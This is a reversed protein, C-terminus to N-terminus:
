IEWLEDFGTEECWDCKTEEEDVDDVDIYIHKAHQNGEHAEIGMLCSRCVRLPRDDDSEKLSEFKWENKIVGGEYPEIDDIDFDFEEEDDDILGNYDEFWEIAAKENAEFDMDHESDPGYLEDDGFVTFYNNDKHDFYLTYDTTFGDSDYVMKHRIREYRDDSDEDDFDDEDVDGTIESTWINYCGNDRMQKIYDLLAVHDGEFEEIYKLEEGDLSDTSYHIDYKSECVKSERQSTGGNDVWDRFQQIADDDSEAHIRRVFYGDNLISYGDYPHDGLKVLSAFYHRDLEESETLSENALGYWWLLIMDDPYQKRLEKQKEIADKKSYMPCKKAIEPDHINAFEEFSKGNWYMRRLGIPTEPVLEIIWSNPSANYNPSAEGLSETKYRPPLLIKGLKKRLEQFSKEDIEEQSPLAEPNVLEIKTFHHLKHKNEPQQHYKDYAIDSVMHALESNSHTKFYENANDRTWGRIAWQYTKDSFRKIVEDVTVPVVTETGDIPELEDDVENITVEFDAKGDVSEKVDGLVDIMGKSEETNAEKMSKKNKRQIDYAIALAQKQPKGAKIETAVNKKFADDSASQILKEDIDDSEYLPASEKMNNESERENRNKIQDYAESETLETLTDFDFRSNYDLIIAYQPNVPTDMKNLYQIHDFGKSRIFRFVDHFNKARLLIKEDEPVLNDIHIKDPHIFDRPDGDRWIDYPENHLKCLLLDSLNDGDWKVIDDDIVLPKQVDPSYISYVYGDAHNLNKMTERATKEDEWFFAGEEGRGTMGKSKDFPKETSFFLNNQRNEDAENINEKEEEEWSHLKDWGIIDCFYYSGEKLHENGKDIGIVDSVGFDHGVFNQPMDNTVIDYLGDIDVEEEVEGTFVKEYYSKKPNEGTADVIYDYSQRFFEEYQPKLYYISIIM